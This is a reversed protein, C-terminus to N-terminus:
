PVDKQPIRYRQNLYIVKPSLRGRLSVLASQWVRRWWPSLKMGKPKTNTLQLLFETKHRLWAYRSQRQVHMSELSTLKRGPM